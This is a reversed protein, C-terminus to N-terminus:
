AAGLKMVYVTMPVAKGKLELDRREMGATDLGAAACTQQSILIEGAAAKGALRAAANVADGLATLQSVGGSGISGVFANGTHVGAGVPLWPGEAQGHGTHELIRRATDIARRAHDQGSIGPPFLVTANDGVFKEILGGTEAVASTSLTYYRDMLRSFESPTMGEALTTSGRVDAFLMSMEVEAGGPYKRVMDECTNCLTPNYNSREIRLLTRVLSGGFGSFPSLCMVCRPNSPLRRFVFRKRRMVPIGDHLVTHWLQTNRDDTQM